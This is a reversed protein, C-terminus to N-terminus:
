LKRLDAFVYIKENFIYPRSKAEPVTNLIQPNAIQPGVLFIQTGVKANKNSKFNIHITVDGGNSKLNWVFHQFVLLLLYESFESFSPESIEGFRKM